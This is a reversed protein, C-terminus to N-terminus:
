PRDTRGGRPVDLTLPGRVRQPEGRPLFFFLVMHSAIALDNLWEYERRAFELVVEHSHRQDFLFFGLLPRDSAPLMKIQELQEALDFANQIPIAM